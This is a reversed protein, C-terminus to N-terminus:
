MSATPEDGDAAIHARAYDRMATRIHAQWDDGQAKFWALVSADVPITVEVSSPGRRHARRCFEDTLEPIDSLDIDDDSMARVREWDTRSTETTGTDSM